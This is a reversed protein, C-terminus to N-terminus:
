EITFSHLTFPSPHDGEGWDEGGTVPSLANLAHMHETARENKGEANKRQEEGKV